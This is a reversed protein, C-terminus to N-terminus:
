PIIRRRKSTASGGAVQEISLHSITSYGSGSTNNLKLRAIGSSITATVTHSANNSVWNAASTELTGDAEYWEGVGTSGNTAVTARLTTGDYIELYQGTQASTADGLAITFKFSTSGAGPTDVRFAKCGGPGVYVIGALRANVIDSRDAAVQSASCTQGGLSVSTEWGGTVTEAGVTYNHPYATADELVTNAPDSVYAFLLRFNFGVPNTWQASLRFSLSILLLLKKM